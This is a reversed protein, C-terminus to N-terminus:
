DRTDPRRYRLRGTLARLDVDVSREEDVDELETVGAAERLKDHTEPPAVAGIEFANEGPVPVGTAAYEEGLDVDWRHHDGDRGSGTAPVRYYAEVPEDDIDEASM